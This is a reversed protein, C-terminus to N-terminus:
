FTRTFRGARSLLWCNIGDSLLDANRPKAEVRISSLFVPTQLKGRNLRLWRDWLTLFIVLLDVSDEQPGWFRKYDCPHLQKQNLSQELFCVAYSAISATFHSRFPRQLHLHWVPSILMNGHVFLSQSTWSVRSTTIFRTDFLVSM